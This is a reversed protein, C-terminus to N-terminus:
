GTGGMYTGVRPTKIQLGQGAPQTATIRSANIGQPMEIKVEIVGSVKNNLSGPALTAPQSPAAGSPTAAPASGPVMVNLTQRAEKNGFTALFRAVGEGIDDSFTTGEIAHKYLMTGGAYGAAGAGAVAAASTAVAGAGMAPIWKLNTKGLAKFQQWLSGAADKAADPVDPNEGVGSGFGTPWNTVEVPTVGAVKGLTEKVKEAAPGGASKGALKGAGWKLVKGTGWASGAVGLVAAGIEIKGLGDDSLKSLKETLTDVSVGLLSSSQLTAQMNIDMRKLQESATTMMNVEEQKLLGKSNSAQNRIRQYEQMNALMPALFNQVQMDSFLQGLKMRDGKTVKQTLQAFYMVPDGSAIAKKMEASYNVGFKKFAKATEPASLKALFNKLNNAAEAPDGAGKLAIQLAAGLSAVGKTGKVGLQAASATLQPFYLAMDRLEFAGENGASAMMELARDVDGVPVKLNDYVSYISRGLEEVDAGTATAAHGISRTMTMAVRPDLGKSVLAGFGRLLDAQTQNTAKSTSILGTKWEAMTSKFKMQGVGATNAINALEHEVDIAQEAADKLGLVMGGGVALTTRRGWKEMEGGLGNMGRGVAGVTGKLGKLKTEFKDVSNGSNGLAASFQDKLTLAVMITTIPSAM